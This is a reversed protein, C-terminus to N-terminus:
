VFHFVRFMLVSRSHKTYMTPFTAALDFIFESQMYAWVIELTEFSDNDSRVTICQRLIKVIWFSDLVWLLNNFKAIYEPWVMLFPTLVLDTQIAAFFV